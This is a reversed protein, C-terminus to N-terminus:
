AESTYATASGSIKGLLAYTGNEMPIVAPKDKKTMKVVTGDADRVYIWGDGALNQRILYLHDQASSFEVRLTKLAAPDIVTFTATTNDISGTEDTFLTVTAM